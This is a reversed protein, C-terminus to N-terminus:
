ATTVVTVCKALGKKTRITRRRKPIRAEAAHNRLPARAWESRHDPKSKKKAM